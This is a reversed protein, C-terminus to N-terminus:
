IKALADHVAQRFELIGPKDRGPYVRNTLTTVVLLRDPDIWLSTGTFGTHGFADKSFYQGASSGEYSRLMWGLGRREGDTEAHQQVAEDMLARDINFRPDRELWAQGFAAVDGANAFLGAHGAVGGLGCANEDHVEGWPRRKRWTPDDETPAIMMRDIGNRVPNFCPSDLKIGATFGECVGEFIAMDLGIHSRPTVVDGAYWLRTTAEGLLMLGLDSYRVVGDPQGVFPYNCIAHLGRGWRENRSIPDPVDPPTPAPEAAARYVDRWPPLGSTHTLLHRFTVRNPDVTQGALDPPTPLRQKSHPDQGGDIGRPAAAGFEPIVSTLPDDLRVKGASVLALFATTTFLKTVSALDFLTEPTVAGQGIEPDIVGTGIDLVLRGEHIVAIACAPFVDGLAADIAQTLRAYVDPALSNVKTQVDM